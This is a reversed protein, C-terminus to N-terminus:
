PISDFCENSSGRQGVDAEQSSSQGVRQWAPISKRHPIEHAGHHRLCAPNEIATALIGSYAPVREFPEIQNAAFNGAAVRKNQRQETEQHWIRMGPKM